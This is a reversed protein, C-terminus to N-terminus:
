RGAVARDGKLWKIADPYDFCLSFLDIALLVWLYTSYTESGEPRAFLILGVLLTWPILHPISMLKSIGRDYAIVGLNPLMGGIALVAVWIGMPQDLFFLSAVNAPVLIFNMWVIVWTPLARLSTWVDTILSNRTTMSQEM